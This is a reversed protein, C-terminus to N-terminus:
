RRILEFVPYRNAIPAFAELPAGAAVPFYRQVTVRFRSLYEKLVEPKEEDPVVRVNFQLRVRGKKLTVQEDALANRAWQTYGRPGVLFLKKHYNLVNVTTSYIKGTKRGRVQLLYNHQLGLGFSVVGGYFRNIFREFANPRLFNHPQDLRIGKLFNGPDIYFLPAM